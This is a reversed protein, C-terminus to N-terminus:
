SGRGTRTKEGAATRDASRRGDARTGPPDGYQPRAKGTGLSDQLRSQNVAQKSKGSLLLRDEYPLATDDIVKEGVTAVVRPGSVNEGRKYWPPAINSFRSQGTAPDKWSYVQAVALESVLILAAALGIFLTKPNRM